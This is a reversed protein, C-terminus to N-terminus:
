QDQEWLIQAAKAAERAVAATGSYQVRMGAGYVLPYPGLERKYRAWEPFLADVMHRPETAYIELFTNAEMTAGRQLLGVAYQIALKDM